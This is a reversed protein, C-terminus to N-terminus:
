HVVQQFYGQSKLEAIGARRSRAGAKRAVRHEIVATSKERALVNGELALEGRRGNADRSQCPDARMLHQTHDDIGGRDAIALKVAKLIGVFRADMVGCQPAAHIEKEEAYRRMPAQM